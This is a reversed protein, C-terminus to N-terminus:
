EAFTGTAAASRTYTYPGVFHSKLALTVTAQNSERLNAQISQAPMAAHFFFVDNEPGADASGVWASLTKDSGTIGTRKLSYGPPKANVLYMAFLYTKGDGLFKGLRAKTWRAPVYNTLIELNNPDAQGQVQIATENEFEPVNILNPPTGIAPPERLNTIPSFDGAAPAAPIDTAGAPIKETTFKDGLGQIESASPSLPLETTVPVLAFAFRSFLGAGVTSIHSM